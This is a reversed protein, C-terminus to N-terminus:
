VKLTLYTCLMNQNLKSIHLSVFFDRNRDKPQFDFENCHPMQSKILIIKKVYRQEAFILDVFTFTSPSGM